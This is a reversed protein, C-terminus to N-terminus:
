KGNRRQDAEFVARLSDAVDTTTSSKLDDHVSDLDEDDVAALFASMEESQDESLEVDYQELKNRFRTLKISTRLKELRLNSLRKKLDVPSLFSMPYHSGPAIRRKKMEDIGVFDCKNSLKRSESRLHRFDFNCSPCRLCGKNADDRDSKRAGNHIQFWQLCNVSSLRKYPYTKTVLRKSHHTIAPCSTKLESESIGCCFVYSNDLKKICSKLENTLAISSDNKPSFSIFTDLISGAVIFEAIGDNYIRISIVTSPGGKEPPIDAKLRTIELCQGENYQGWFLKRTQVSKSNALILNEVRILCDKLSSETQTHAHSRSNLNDEM